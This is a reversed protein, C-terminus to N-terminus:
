SLLNALLHTAHHATSRGPHQPSETWPSLHSPVHIIHPAKHALDKAPVGLLHPLWATEGAGM